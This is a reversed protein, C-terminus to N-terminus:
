ATVNCVGNGVGRKNYSVSVSQDANVSISAIVDDLKAEYFEDSFKSVDAAQANIYVPGSGDSYVEIFHPCTAAFAPPGSVTKSMQTITGEPLCGALVGIAGAALILKRPTM